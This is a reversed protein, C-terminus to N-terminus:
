FEEDANIVAVVGCDRCLKLSRFQMDYLWKRIKEKDWKRQVVEVDPKVKLTVLQLNKEYRVLKMM